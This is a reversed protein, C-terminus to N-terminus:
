PSETPFFFTVTRPHTCSLSLSLTPCLLSRATQSPCRRWAVIPVFSAQCLRPEKKQPQSGPGGSLFETTKARRPGTALQTPAHAHAQPTKSPSMISYSPPRASHPWNQPPYPSLTIIIRIHSKKPVHAHSHGTWKPTRADRTRENPDFPHDAPSFPHPPPALFPASAPPHLHLPTALFSAQPRSVQTTLVKLGRVSNPNLELSTKYCRIAESLNNLEDLARGKLAWAQPNRTDLAAAKDFAELAEAWQKQDRCRMGHQIWRASLEASSPQADGM